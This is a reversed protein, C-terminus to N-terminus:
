YRRKRSYVLWIVFELGSGLLYGGIFLIFFVLYNYRFGYHKSYYLLLSTGLFACISGSLIGSPRAITQSSVASVTDIIPNHTLRSFARSPGSLKQRTHELTRVYATAKLSHQVGLLSDTETRPMEELIVQRTSEAEAKAMEQIKAINELSKEQNAREAQEAKHKQIREHHEHDVSHEHSVHHEPRPIHKESM